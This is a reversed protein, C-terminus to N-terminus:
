TSGSGERLARRLDHALNAPTLDVGAHLSSVWKGQPDYIRVPASHVEDDGSDHSSLIMFGNWVPKLTALPGSLYRLKGQAGHRRLFARRSARTDGAPDTSIAVAAVSTRSEATLRDLGDAIPGAVVPCTERCQTDLFTLAVAKGRLESARVVKGAEDRLVFDVMGIVAPPESGRYGDQVTETSRSALAVVGAVVLALAFASAALAVTLRTNVGRCTM